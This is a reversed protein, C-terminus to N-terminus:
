YSFTKIKLNFSFMEEKTPSSFSVSEAEILRASKQIVSLFNKFAPYNGYLVLSLSIGKVRAGEEIPSIKDLTINELILGSQSSTKGLYYFLNPISPEPPLATNIKALQAEYEKLKDSLKSLQSFYDEKTQLELKKEQVNLRLNIFKQYKPQWLFIIGLVLLFLLFLILPTKPM